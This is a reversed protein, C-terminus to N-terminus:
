LQNRLCRASLIKKQIKWDPMLISFIQASFQEWAWIAIEETWLLIKKKTRKRNEVIILYILILKKNMLSRMILHWIIKQNIKRLEMKKEIFAQISSSYLSNTMRIRERIRWLWNSRSLLHWKRLIQLTLIIRISQDSQFSKLTIM